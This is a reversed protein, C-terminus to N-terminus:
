SMSLLPEAELTLRDNFGPSDFFLDHLAHEMAVGDATTEESPGPVDVKAVASKSGAAVADSPVNAINLQVIALRSSLEGATARYFFADTGSYGAMPAYVFSGDSHLTLTGHEPGRFLVAELSNSNSGTDNALVGAVAVELPQGKAAEFVDNFAIPSDGALVIRDELRELRLQQQLNRKRQQYSKERSRIHFKM